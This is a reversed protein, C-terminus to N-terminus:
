KHHCLQMSKTTAWEGLPCCCFAPRRKVGTHDCLCLASDSYSKQGTKMGCRQNVTKSKPLGRQGQRFAQSPTQSPQCISISTNTCTHLLDCTTIHLPGPGRGIAETIAASGWPANETPGESSHATRVSGTNYTQLTHTHRTTVARNRRLAHSNM